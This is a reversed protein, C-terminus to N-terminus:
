LWDWVTYVVAGLVCWAAVIAIAWGIPQFLDLTKHEPHPITANWYYEPEPMGDVKSWRPGDEFRVLYGQWRVFHRGLGDTVYAGVMYPGGSDPTENIRKWM